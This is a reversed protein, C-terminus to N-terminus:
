VQTSLTPYLTGAQTSVKTDGPQLISSTGSSGRQRNGAMYLTATSADQNVFNTYGGMNGHENDCVHPNETSTGGTFKIAAEYTDASAGSDGEFHNNYINIHRGNDGAGASGDVHVGRDWFLFRNAFILVANGECLVGTAGANPSTGTSAEFYNWAVITDPTDPALYLGDYAAHFENGIVHGYQTATDSAWQTGQARIRVQHSTAKQLPGFLNGAIVPRNGGRYDIFRTLQNNSPSLDMFQVGICGGGRHDASTAGGALEFQVLTEAITGTTNNWVVAAQVGHDDDGLGGSQTSGGMVLQAGHTILYQNRGPFLLGVDESADNTTTSDILYSSGPKLVVYGGTDVHLDDIADQIASRDDTVGDGAANYPPLWVKLYYGDNEPAWASGTWALYDGASTGSPITGSAADAWKIGLSQTSDAQIVQGNTGVPLRADVTSYGHVDGKTTLVSAGGAAAAWKLGTAEASDATLVFDNTGVPLRADVTSFTFLDGKTTLPVQDPIAAWKLGLGQASDATLVFDNTGIPIRAVATDFGYVDGKTTLPSAGAAALDIVSQVTFKKLNNSDSIDNGLLVDGVAAAAGTLAVIEGAVNDHFVDADEAKAALQEYRVSDGAVTGAALGTLKFTGVAWNATLPVTGDVDVFQTPVYPEWVNHQTHLTNHDNVHETITNASTRNIPLTAM